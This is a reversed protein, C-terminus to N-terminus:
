SMLTKSGAVSLYRSAVFFVTLPAWYRPETVKASSYLSDGVNRSCIATFGVPLGALVMMEQRRVSSACFSTFRSAMEHDIFTVLFTVRLAVVSLRYVSHPVATFTVAGGDSWTASMLSRVFFAGSGGAAM